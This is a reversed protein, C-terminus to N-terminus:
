AMSKISNDHIREPVSLEEAMVEPAPRKAMLAAVPGCDPKTASAARGLEANPRHVGHAPRLLAGPGSGAMISRCCRRTTACCALEGYSDLRSATTAYVGCGIDGFRMVPM